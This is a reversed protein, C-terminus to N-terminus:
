SRRSRTRLHSPVLLSKLVLQTKRPSGKKSWAMSRKMNIHFASEDLFVCNKRFDMDTTEWRRVCDLREQIKAKSNRDLPQFRSKKLTLNCQTRVFEYLTSKSIKLGEFKKQLLREMLQELVASRNEDVYELIVKKHEETLIRSRGNKKRKKFISDPDKEYQTAWRQATRIHIGLQKAAASANLIKEFMLKFFRVKDQDSYLTYGRKVTAERMRVDADKPEDIQMAVPERKSARPMNCLYQTHSSVTELAYTEEDVLYDMPEPRGYEDVVNGHGDEYFFQNDM